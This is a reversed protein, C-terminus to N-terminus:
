CSIDIRVIQICQGRGEEDERGVNHHICTTNAEFAGCNACGGNFWPDEDSTDMVCQAFPSTPSMCRECCTNGETDGVVQLLLANRRPLSCEYHRGSLVYKDNWRLPRVQRQDLLRFHTKRNILKDNRPHAPDELIIQRIAPLLDIDNRPQIVPWKKALHIQAERFHKESQPLISRTDLLSEPFTLVRRKLKPMTEFAEVAELARGLHRLPEQTDDAWRVLQKHVGKKMKSKIVEKICWDKGDIEIFHDRGNESRKVLHSPM